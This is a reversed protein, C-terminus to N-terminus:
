TSHDIISNVVVSDTDLKNNTRLISHKCGGERAVRSQITLHGLIVDLFEMSLFPTREKM